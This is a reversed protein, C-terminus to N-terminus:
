SGLALCSWKLNPIDHEDVGNTKEEQLWAEVLGDLDVVGHCRETRSFPNLAAPVAWNGHHWLRMTFTKDHKWGILNLCKVTAM